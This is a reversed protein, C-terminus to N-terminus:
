AELRDPPPRSPSARATSGADVSRHVGTTGPVQRHGRGASRARAPATLEHLEDDVGRVGPARALPTLSRVNDPDVGANSGSSGWASSSTVPAAPGAESAVGSGRHDPHVVVV